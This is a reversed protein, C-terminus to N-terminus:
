SAPALSLIRHASSGSTRAFTCDVVDVYWVDVGVARACPACTNVGLPCDLAHYATTSAFIIDGELTVLFILTPVSGIVAYSAQPHISLPLPTLTLWCSQPHAPQLPGPVVCIDPVKLKLNQRYLFDTRRKLRERSAKAHRQFM